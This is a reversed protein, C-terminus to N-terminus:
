LEVCSRIRGSIRIWEVVEGTGLAIFEPGRFKMPFSRLTTRPYVANRAIKLEAGDMTTGLCRYLTQRDLMMALLYLEEGTGCDPVWAELLGQRSRRRLADQLVSLGGMESSM